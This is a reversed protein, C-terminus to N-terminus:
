VLSATSSCGERSTSVGARASGDGLWPDARRSGRPVARDPWHWALREQWRVRRGGANPLSAQPRRAAYDHVRSGTSREQRFVAAMAFLVGSLPAPVTNLCRRPRAPAWGFPATGRREIASEHQRAHEGDTRLLGAPRAAFYWFVPAVVGDSFNEALGRMAARAVGHADLSM